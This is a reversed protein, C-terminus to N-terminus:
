PTQLCIPLRSLKPHPSACLQAERGAGGAMRGQCTLVRLCHNGFGHNSRSFLSKKLIQWQFFSKTILYSQSIVLNVFKFLNEKSFSKEFGKLMSILVRPLPPSQYYLLIYHQKKYLLMEWVNKAM